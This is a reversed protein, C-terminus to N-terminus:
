LHGFLFECLDFTFSLLHLFTGISDFFAPSLEIDSMLKFLPLAYFAQDLSEGIGFLVYALVLSWNSTEADFAAFMVGSVTMTAGAVLLPLGLYGSNPFAAVLAGFALVGVVDGAHWHMGALGHGEHAFARTALTSLAAAFPLKNM